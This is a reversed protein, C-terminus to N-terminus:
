SFKPYTTLNQLIMHLKLSTTIKLVKIVKFHGIDFLVLFISTLFVGLLPHNTISFLLYDINHQSDLCTQLIKVRRLTFVSIIYVLFKSLKEM